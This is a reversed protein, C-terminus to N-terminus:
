NVQLNPFEVVFIPPFFFRLDLCLYGLFSPGQFIYIEPKLFPTMKPILENSKLPLTLQLPIKEM